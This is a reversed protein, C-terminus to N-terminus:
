RAHMGDSPKSSKAHGVNDPIILYYKNSDLLQGPGFLVAAFIPRLFTKGSGSTAHLILVANTTHGRADKAPTGFTTYHMKVDALTEGSQFHFNHIIFDGEHPAPGSPAAATRAGAPASVLMGVLAFCIGLRMIMTTKTM